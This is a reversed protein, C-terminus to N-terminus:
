QSSHNGQSEASKSNYLPSSQSFYRLRWCARATRYCERADDIWPEALKLLNFIIIGLTAKM